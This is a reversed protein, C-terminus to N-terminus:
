TQCEQWTMAPRLPVTMKPLVRRQGRARCRSGLVESPWEWAVPVVTGTMSYNGAMASKM